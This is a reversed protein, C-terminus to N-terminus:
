FTMIMTFVVHLSKMSIAPFFSKPLVKDEFGSREAVAIWMFSLVSRGGNAEVVNFGENDINSIYLGNCCGLPTVTVTPHVSDRLLQRFSESFLVRKLGSEITETGHAIALAQESATNFLPTMSGESNRQLQISAGDTYVDGHVYQGARSGEVYQGYISGHIDAGFLDGWAGIGSNIYTRGDDGAMQGPRMRLFGTGTTTTTFYGGYWTSSSNKYGLAGWNNGYSQCGLVGGSRAYDGYGWGGIGFEYSEQDNDNAKIGGRATTWTYGTGATYGGTYLYLIQPDTTLDWIQLNAFNNPYQYTGADTWTSSGGGSPTEWLVYTNPSTGRVTLVQGATGHSGGYDRIHGYYMDVYAANNYRLGLVNANTINISNM